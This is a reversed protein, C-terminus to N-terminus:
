WTERRRQQGTSKVDTTSNEPADTNNTQAAATACKDATENGRTGGHAPIWALLRHLGTARRASLKMERFVDTGSAPAHFREPRRAPRTEMM